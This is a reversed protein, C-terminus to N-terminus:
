IYKIIRVMNKLLLIICLENIYFIQMDIVTTILMADVLVGELWKLIKSKIYLNWVWLENRINCNEIYYLEGRNANLLFVCGNLLNWAHIFRM